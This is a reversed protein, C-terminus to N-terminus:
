RRLRVLLLSQTALLAFCLRRFLAVDIVFVPRYVSVDPRQSLAPCAVLLWATWVVDTEDTRGITFCM